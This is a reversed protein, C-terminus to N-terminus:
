LYILQEEKLTTTINQKKIFSISDLQKLSFMQPHNTLKEDNLNDGGFLGINIAYSEFKAKSAQIKERKTKNSSFGYEEFYQGDSLKFTIYRSDDESEIKGHKATIVTTKGVNKTLDFIKVNKLLNQKEGYKEDFKIAYGPIETNFVGPILALAPQTKQM